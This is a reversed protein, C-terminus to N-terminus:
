NFGNICRELDGFKLGISSSTIILRSLYRGFESMVLCPLARGPLSGGVADVEEPKFLRLASLSVLSSTWITGVRTLDPGGGFITYQLLKPWADDISMRTMEITSSTKQEFERLVPSISEIFQSQTGYLAFSIKSM